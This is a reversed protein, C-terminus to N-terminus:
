NLLNVNEANGIGFKYGVSDWFDMYKQKYFKDIRIQPTRFFMYQQTDMKFVPWEVKVPAGQNPNGNKIFNTYYDM